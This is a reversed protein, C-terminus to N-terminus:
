GIKTLLRDFTQLSLEAEINLAGQKKLEAVSHKGTTVALVEIQNDLAAQVDYISDGVLLVNNPSIKYLDAARQLAMRVMQSREPHDSSFVGFAFYTDIQHHKLKQWGIIELNGTVLGLLVGQKQLAEVCERSNKLLRSRPDPGLKLFNQIIGDLFAKIGAEIQASEVGHVSLFQRAISPDTCGHVPIGQMSGEIDFHKKMSLQFAEKHTQSGILLTSDIDFLIMKSYNSHDDLVQPLKWKSDIKRLQHVRKVAALQLPGYLHPFLEGSGESDEHKWQASCLEPDVELLLLDAIHSYFLNAVREIQELHSFHIFGEAKLSDAEYQGSQCASHWDQSLLMHYVRSM